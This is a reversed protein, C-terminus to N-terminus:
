QGFLPKILHMRTSTLEGRFGLMFPGATNAPRRVGDGM